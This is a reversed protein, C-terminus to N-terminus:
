GGSVTYTIIITYTPGSVDDIFPRVTVATTGADLSVKYNDTSGEPNATVGNRRVDLVSEGDPTITLTVENNDGPESDDSVAVTYQLTAEDFSLGIGTAGDKEVGTIDTVKPEVVAGKPIYTVALVYSEKEINDVSSKITIINIGETLTITYPSSGGQASGGLDVAITAKPNVAAVTLIVQNNDGAIDKDRVTFNYGHINKDFGIDVPDGDSTVGIGALRADVYDSVRVVPYVEHMDSINLRKFSTEDFAQGHGTLITLYTRERNIFNYHDSYEIKGGEGGVGLGFFYRKGIGMIAEGQPVYVSQELRTPFPFIDNAWVGNILKTTAPVIKTFYDTPNVIFLVENVKRHLGNRGVSLQALVGGYSEPTVESFPTLPLLPYGEVPDFTGYPNRLMGVPSNVGTGTIIGEELGNAIAEQLITRVYRDLWEPGLELMTRCIPIWATLQSQDLKILKFTAGLKETIETCIKGWVALHRDGVSVLIETLKGTNQFNIADLLPHEEIIDEFVADIVTTPITEDILNIGGPDGSMRVESVKNYYKREESTLVRVGRGSLINNDANAVLGKAEAMVVEQLMDTYSTFAEAFAAEDGSTMADHMKVMIESKQKELLDLNLM